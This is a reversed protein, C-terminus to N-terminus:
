EETFLSIQENDKPFILGLGGRLDQSLLFLLLVARSVQLVGQAQRMQPMNKYDDEDPSLWHEECDRIAAQDRLYDSVDYM